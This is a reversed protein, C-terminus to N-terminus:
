SFLGLIKRYEREYSTVFNNFSFDSNVKKLANIVLREVEAPNDILRIITTAWDYPKFPDLIIGSVGNEVLEPLAGANSVLVPKCSHMAELVSIGFGENFSPHVFVRCGKLLDGVSKRYGLLFVNKELHHKEIYNLIEKKQPGDGAVYLFMDVRKLKNIIINFTEILMMINKLEILGSIALVSNNKLFSGIENSVFPKLSGNYIVVSNKNQLVKFEKLKEVRVYKSVFVFLDANSYFVKSALIKYKPQKVASVFSVVIMIPPRFLKILFGLLEGMLFQTHVINIKEADIIKILERFHLVLNKKYFGEYVKGGTHIFECKLEVFAEGYVYLFSNQGFFSMLDKTKRPTGGYLNFDPLIYLIRPEM